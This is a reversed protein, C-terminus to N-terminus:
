LTPDDEAVNETEATEVADSPYWHCSDVSPPAVKEFIEPAVLAISERDLRVVPSEPLFYRHTTDAVPVELTVLSGAVSV